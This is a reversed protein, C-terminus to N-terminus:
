ESLRQAWMSLQVQSLQGSLREVEKGDKFAIITPLGTVGYEKAIKQHVDANIKLFKVKMGFGLASDEYDDYMAMCPGCTTSYFDVLVAIDNEQINTTCTEDSVELPFPDNLDADCKSCPFVSAEEQVQVTNINNCEQCVIKLTKM